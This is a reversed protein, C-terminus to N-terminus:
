GKLKKKAEPYALARELSMETSDVIEKYIKQASASDGAKDYARALLLKHFLDTQNAQKLHEIAKAYDGSELKIYGALYHYSPWFQKGREGGEEIMKKITEAEKWAEEFKGAKALSRGRGHHLRGLWIQKDEAALQTGPVTQYGAEYSKIADDIRGNELQVRAISNWIFVPPLTPLGGTRTYEARYAELAKLAEALNGEYVYTYALGYNPLFPATNEAKKSLSTQFLERAKAFDAKLIYYNGLLAYARATSGDIKIAKEFFARAEELKGQNNLVQGMMMCVLREEPYDKHLEQLKVLAEDAKQSRLLVIADIYRREGDSANKALEVAKDVHPKGQAGSTAGVLYHAFAFEPDAEVAKKATPQIQAGFQFNEIQRLAQLVLERAEKSKTTFTFSKPKDDAALASLSVLLMFALVANLRVVIRKM